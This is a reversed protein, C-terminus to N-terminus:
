ILWSMGALAALGLGLGALATGGLLLGVQWDTLSVEAPQPPMPHAPRSPHVLSAAAHAAAPPVIAVRSSALSSM